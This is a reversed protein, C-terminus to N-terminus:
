DSSVEAIDDDDSVEEAQSSTASYEDVEIDDDEEEEEEVDDDSVDSRAAHAGAKQEPESEPSSDEEEQGYEVHEVQPGDGADDFEHHVPHSAQDEQLQVITQKLSANEGRLRILEDMDEQFLAKLQLTEQYNYVSSRLSRNESELQDIQAKLDQVDRLESRLANNSSELLRNSTRISDLEMNLCKIEHNLKLKENEHKLKASKVEEEADAIKARLECDNMKLEIVVKELMEKEPLFATQSDIVVQKLGRIEKQQNELEQELSRVRTTLAQKEMEAKAADKEFQIRLRQENESKASIQSELRQIDIKLKFVEAEKNALKWDIAARKISLNLEMGLATTPKHMTSVAPAPPTRMAALVSRTAPLSISRDDM